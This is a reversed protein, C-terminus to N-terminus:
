FLTTNFNDIYNVMKQGLGSNYVGLAGQSGLMWRQMGEMRAQPRLCRLTGDARSGGRGIVGESSRARRSRGGSM